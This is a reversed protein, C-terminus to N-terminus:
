RLNLSISAKEIRVLRLRAITARTCEAIKRAIAIRWIISALGAVPRQTVGTDVLVQTRQPIKVITEDIRSHSYKTERPCISFPYKPSQVTLAGRPQKSGAESILRKMGPDVDSDHHQEARNQNAKQDYPHM